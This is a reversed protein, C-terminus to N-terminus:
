HCTSVLKQPLKPDSALEKWVLECKELFMRSDCNANLNFILPAYGTTAAHLCKVKAVEMDGEGASISALDVFVKLEQLAVFNLLSMNLYDRVIYVYSILYPKVVFRFSIVYHVRAILVRLSHFNIVFILLLM